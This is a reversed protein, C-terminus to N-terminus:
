YRFLIEKQCGHTSQKTLMLECRLHVDFSGLLSDQCIWHLKLVSNSSAWLARFLHLVAGVRRIAHSWAHADSAPLLAPHELICELHLSSQGPLSVAWPSIRQSLTVKTWTLPHEGFKDLTWSAAMRRCGGSDKAREPLLRCLMVGGRPSLSPQVSINGDVFVGELKRQLPSLHTGTWLYVYWM